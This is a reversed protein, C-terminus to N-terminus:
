SFYKERDPIEIAAIDACLTFGQGTFFSFCTIQQKKNWLDEITQLLVAEALCRIRKSIDGSRHPSTANYNRRLIQKSM